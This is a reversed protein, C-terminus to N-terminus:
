NQHLVKIPQKQIFLLEILVFSVDHMAFM